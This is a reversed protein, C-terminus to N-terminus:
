SYSTVSCAIAESSAGGCGAGVGAGAIGVVGAAGLAASPDSTRGQLFDSFIASDSRIGHDMM